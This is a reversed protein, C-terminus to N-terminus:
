PQSCQQVSTVKKGAVAQALQEMHSQNYDLWAFGLSKNFAPLCECVCVCVCSLNEDSLKVHQM